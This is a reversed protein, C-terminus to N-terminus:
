GKSQSDTDTKSDFDSPVSSTLYSSYANMESTLALLKNLSILYKFRAASQQTKISALYLEADVVELSNSLGQTFAKKRLLLNEQALALSSNLGQVEEIAQNAE